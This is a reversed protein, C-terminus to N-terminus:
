IHQFLLTGSESCFKLTSWSGYDLKASPTVQFAVQNNWTHGKWTRSSQLSRTRRQLFKHSSNLLYGTTHEKRHDQHHLLGRDKLSNQLDDYKTLQPSAGIVPTSTLATPTMPSDLATHITRSPPKPTSPLAPPTPSHSTPCSLSVFCITTSTKM